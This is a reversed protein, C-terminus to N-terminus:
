RRWGGFPSGQPPGYQPAQPAQQQWGQAPPPGYQPAQPAQQQGWNQWQQPFNQPMPRQPPPPVQVQSLDLPAGYPTWVYNFYPQQQKDYKGSFSGECVVYRGMLINASSLAARVAIEAYPAFIQDQDPLRADYGCAAAVFAKVRQHFSQRYKSSLYASCKSGAPFNPNHSQQNAFEAIFADGGMPPMTCREILLLHAGDPVRPLRTGSVDVLGVGSWVDQGGYGYNMM